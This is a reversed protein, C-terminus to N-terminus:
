CTLKQPVMECVSQEELLDLYSGSHGLLLAETSTTFRKMDRLLYAAAMVYGMDSTEISSATRLWQTTAWKLAVGLDYKDVVIAIQFLELATITSPVADNCFHIVNCVTRMAAADDEELRVEKPSKESLGQGESWHPGFMVSFVKSAFGLCQSSVRLRLEQSGIVLIIDGKPSIDASLPSDDSEATVM